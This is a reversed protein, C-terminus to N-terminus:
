LYKEISEYTDSCSTPQANEESSAAAIDTAEEKKANESSFVPAQESPIKNEFIINKLIRLKEMVNDKQLSVSYYSIRKCVARIKPLDSNMVATVIFWLCVSEVFIGFLGLFEWVLMLIGLALRSPANMNFNGLSVLFVTNFLLVVAAIKAYKVANKQEQKLALLHEKEKPYIIKAYEKSFFKMDFLEKEIIVPNIKKM